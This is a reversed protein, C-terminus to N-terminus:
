ISQNIAEQESAIERVIADFDLNAKEAECPLIPNETSNMQMVYRQTRRVKQRGNDCIIDRLKRREISQRTRSTGMGQEHNKGRFPHSFFFRDGEMATQFQEAIVCAFTPGVLGGQVPLEALGGTYADIDQSGDAPGSKQYVERIRGM